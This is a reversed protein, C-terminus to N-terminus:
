ELSAELTVYSGTRPQALPAVATQRRRPPLGPGIVLWHLHPTVGPAGANAEIRFGQEHLGVSRAVAQVARIMAALLAPDAAEDAMLSAVHTKPIVVAHTVYEPYPHEFALVLDDEHIVRVKLKGSLVDECYWDRKNGLADALSGRPDPGAIAGGTPQERRALATLVEHRVQQMTAGLSQLVGSAIGEGERALGLLLHEPGVHAHGLKRSEDIALEIVKKARPSITIEGPTTAEQGRGIIFEVASRLKGLEAGLSLLVRAAASEGERVLGILLHETGIYTHNFRTAEDQALALVRKARDNFRDFPGMLTRRRFPKTAVSRGGGRHM